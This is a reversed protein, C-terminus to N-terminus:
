LHPGTAKYLSMNCQKVIFTLTEDFDVSSNNKLSKIVQIVETETIPAVFM